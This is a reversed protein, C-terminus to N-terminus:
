GTATPAAPVPTSGTAPPTSTSSDPAPTDPAPTAAAVVTVTGTMQPHITCAYAFSGASTFTHAFGGGPALIGSDFSGDSATVTHDLQGANSWSVTGGEPIEVSAPQFAIDVAAVSAGGAELGDHTALTLAGFVVALAAAARIALM